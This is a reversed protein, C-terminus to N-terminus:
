PHPPPTSFVRRARPVRKWQDNKGCLPCVYGMPPADMELTHTLGDACRWVERMEFQIGLDSDEIHDADFGQWRLARRLREAPDGPVNEGPLAQTIEYVPNVDLFEDLSPTLTKSRELDEDWMSCITTLYFTLRHGTEEIHAMMDGLTPQEWTRTGFDCSGCKVKSVINRYFPHIRIDVGVANTAM